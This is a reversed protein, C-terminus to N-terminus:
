RCVFTHRTRITKQPDTDHIRTWDTPPQGAPLRPKRVPRALVKALTTKGIGPLAPIGLHGRAFILAPALRPRPYKGPVV